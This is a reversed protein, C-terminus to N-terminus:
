CPIDVAHTSRIASSVLSSSMVSNPFAQNPYTLTLSAYRFKNNDHTIHKGIHSLCKGEINWVCATTARLLFALHIAVEGSKHLGRVAEKGLSKKLFGHRRCMCPASNVEVSNHLTNLYHCGAALVVPAFKQKKDGKDARAAHGVDVGVNLTPRVVVAVDNGTSARLWM